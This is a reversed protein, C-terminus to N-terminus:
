FVYIMLKECDGCVLNAGPKAWANLNCGPCTYKLRNSRDPVPITKEGTSKLLEEEDDILPGPNKRPPKILASVEKSQDVPEIWELKFNQVLLDKYAKAFNGNEDIYHSMQDGTENGGPQGNSSPILGIKKM